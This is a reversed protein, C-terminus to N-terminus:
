SLFVLLAVNFLELTLFTHLDKRLHLAAYASLHILGPVPSVPVALFCVGCRGVNYIDWKWIWQVLWSFLPLMLYFDLGGEAKATFPSLWSLLFKGKLFSRTEGIAAHHLYGVICHQSKFHISTCPVSVCEPLKMDRAQLSEQESVRGVGKDGAPQSVWVDTWRCRAFFEHQKAM